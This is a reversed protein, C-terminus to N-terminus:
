SSLVTQMLRAAASVPEIFRSGHRLSLAEVITFMGACGLVITTAGHEAELDEISASVLEASTDPARELELVPVGSARVAIVADGFGQRVLNEEIVPVSPALTTVVAFRSRHLLAIHFSAQGIGIVPVDAIRRAEELGTDDFCALIVGDASKDKAVLDLVGPVAAAGDEAGQIAAPAGHNTEAVLDVEPPLVERARRAIAETMSRTANPNIIKIQM